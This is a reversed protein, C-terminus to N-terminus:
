GARHGPRTSDHTSDLDSAARWHHQAAAWGCSIARIAFYPASAASNNPICDSATNGNAIVGVHEGIVEFATTNTFRVAWCENIAGANIVEIPALVDNFTPTAVSGVVVDKSTKDWMNQDFLFPVRFKM